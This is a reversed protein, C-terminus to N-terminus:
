VADVVAAFPAWCNAHPVHCKSPTNYIVPLELLSVKLNISGSSSLKGLNM